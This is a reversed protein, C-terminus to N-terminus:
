PFYDGMPNNFSTSFSADADSTRTPPAPPPVSPKSSGLYSIFTGAPCAFSADWTRGERMAKDCETENTDPIGVLSGVGKVVGSAVGDVVDVAARGVAVGAGSLGNKKVALAVAVAVLLGLGVLVTNAQTKM